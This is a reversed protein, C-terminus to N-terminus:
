LRRRDSYRSKKRNSNGYINKKLEFLYIVDLLKLFSVMPEFANSFFRQIKRNSNNNVHFLKKEVQSNKTKSNYRSARRIYVSCSIATVFLLYLGICFKQPFVRYFIRRTQLISIIPHTSCIKRHTTGVKDNYMM